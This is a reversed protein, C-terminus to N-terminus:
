TDTRAWVWPVTQPQRSCVRRSSSLTSADVHCSTWLHTWWLWALLMGGPRQRLTVCRHILLHHVHLTWIDFLSPFSAFSQWKWCYFNWPDASNHSGLTSQTSDLPGTQLHTAVRLEMKILKCKMAALWPILVWIVSSILVNSANVSLWDCAKESSPAAAQTVILGNIPITLNLCFSM